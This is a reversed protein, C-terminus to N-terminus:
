EVDTSREWRHRALEAMLAPPLRQGDSVGLNQEVHRLKRM